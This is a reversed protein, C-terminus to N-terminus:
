LDVEEIDIYLVDTMERESYDPRGPISYIAMNGRIKANLFLVGERGGRMLYKFSDFPGMKDMEESYLINANTLVVRNEVSKVWKKISTGIRLRVKDKPINDSLKLVVDEVDYVVWGVNKLYNIIAEEKSKNKGVITLLKYHNNRNEQILREIDRHSNDM